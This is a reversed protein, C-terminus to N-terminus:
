ASAAPVAARARQAVPAADAGPDVAVPHHRASQRHRRAGGRQLGAAGRDRRDPRPRHLPGGRRRAPPRREAPRAGGGRQHQERDKPRVRHRGRRVPDDPRRRRGQPLHLRALRQHGDRAADVLLASIELARTKGSEPEPSLFAIRPTTEWCDMLHTHVVWLAHAIHTEESPYAVFRGLFAHVQDLLAVGDADPDPMVPPASPAPKAHAEVKAWSRDIEARLRDTGELYKSACGEPHERLQAELEDPTMGSSVAAAVASQFQASRDMKPTAKRAVKTAVRTSTKKRKGPRAAPPQAPPASPAPPFKALLETHAWVKDTIREIRTPVTVRGRARKKANPHNPTGPLRFPQTVVGTGSDAGTAARLADGVRKGEAGTLAHKLFLWEHSNGPSTEVVASPEGPLPRGAKGTDGDREVVLAFVGRTEAATGRRHDGPRVTRGEVYVNFGASAYDIAAEAMHAADGVHFGQSLMRAEDPLMRCLQIVATPDEVGTLAAAAREHLLACFKRVTAEDVLDSM